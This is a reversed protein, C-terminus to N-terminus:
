KQCVLCVNPSKSLSIHIISDIFVGAPLALPHDRASHNSSQQVLHRGLEEQQRLIGDVQQRLKQMRNKDCELAIRM